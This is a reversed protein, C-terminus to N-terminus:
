SAPPDSDPTSETRAERLADMMAEPDAAQALHEAELDRRDRVNPLDRRLEELLSIIKASKQQGLMTLELTLQERLQSLENERRDTILIFVTIFLASAEVLGQLVFFPPADVAPLGAKLLLLNACGWTVLFVLIMGAFRPRAVFITAREVIQHVASAGQRHEEHLRGIAALGQEIHGPLAQDPDDEVDAV